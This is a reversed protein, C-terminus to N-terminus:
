WTWCWDFIVVRVSFCSFLFMFLLFALWCFCVWFHCVISNMSGPSKFLYSSDELYGSHHLPLRSMILFYLFSWLPFLVFCFLVNSPTFWLNSVISSFILLSSSVAISIIWFSAHLSPCVLSFPCYWVIQHSDPFSLFSFPTLSFFGFFLLLCKRNKESNRRISIKM